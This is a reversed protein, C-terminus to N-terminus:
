WLSPSAIIISGLLYKDCAHGNVARGNIIFVFLGGGRRMIRKLPQLFVKAYVGQLCVSVERIHIPSTIKFDGM